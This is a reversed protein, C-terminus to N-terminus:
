STTAKDAKANCEARQNPSQQRFLTRLMCVHVDVHLDELMSGGHGGREINRSRRWRCRSPIRVVYIVCRRNKFACELM